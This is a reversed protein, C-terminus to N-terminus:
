KTSPLTTPQPVPTPIEGKLPLRTANGQEDLVIHQIENFTVFIVDNKNGNIFYNTITVGSGGQFDPAGAIENFAKIRSREDKCEM